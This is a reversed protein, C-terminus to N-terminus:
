KLYGMERLRRVAELRQAKTAYPGIGRPGNGM